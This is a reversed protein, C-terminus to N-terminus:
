LPGRPSRVKLCLHRMDHSLLGRRPEFNHCNKPRFVKTFDTRKSGSHYIQYWLLLVDTLWESFLKEPQYVGSGKWWALDHIVWNHVRLLDTKEHCSDLIAMPPVIRARRLHEPTLLCTLRPTQKNRVTTRPTVSGVSVLVAMPRVRYLAEHNSLASRYEYLRFNM